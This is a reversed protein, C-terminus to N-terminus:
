FLCQINKKMENHEHITLGERKANDLMNKSMGDLGDWILILADANQAMLSNRLVAAKKGHIHWQPECIEYIIGHEKAYREGLSDVGKARGSYIKTISFESEKITEKVLNYDNITRSGAIITKM